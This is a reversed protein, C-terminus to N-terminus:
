GPDLQCVQGLGCIPGLDFDQLWLGIPGLGWGLAWTADADLAAVTGPNM